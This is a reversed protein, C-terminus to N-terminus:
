GEQENLPNSTPAKVRARGRAATGATSGRRVAALLGYLMRQVEACQGGLREHDPPALHGTDRALLLLYETEQSSALAIGLFRVFLGNTQSGAGEVINTPVSASARRVQSAIDPAACRRFASRVDIALTHAKQWVLLRRYPYM